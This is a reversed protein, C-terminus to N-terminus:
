SLVKYENALAQRLRNTYDWLPQMDTHSMGAIVSRISVNFGPLVLDPALEFLPFALFPRDLIEPDPLTVGGADM